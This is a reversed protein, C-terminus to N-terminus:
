YSRLRNKLESRTMSKGGLLVGGSDRQNQNQSQNQNKSQSSNNNGGLLVGGDYGSAYVGGDDYGGDEGFGLIRAIPAGIQALPHPITSLTNSIAKSERLKGIINKGFNILGSLFNGGNVHEVDNYTVSPKSRSELIDNSTLVGINTSARGLGEITFVGELIPVIVLTPRMLRGSVNNVTATIQITSQMIKGPADLSDLGIDSAFEVCIVSGVTGFSANIYNAANQVPGGSWQDWTLNCHNKVCMQYLQLQNASNLLGNKNIFQISLSTIPCYTDTYQPGSLLVNNQERVYIYMRRPISNLQFTNSNCMVNTAGIPLDPLDTFYRQVDFYPYSIALSPSLVQTEQPTIYQFFLYPSNGTTSGYSTPGGVSGGFVGTVTALPDLENRSWMRNAFQNYFNFTFDMANVNFFASSLGNGWYFPPLIINECFACDVVATIPGVGTQVPNSVIVFPFGGRGTVAEDGYNEYGGLPNRITSVNSLSSYNQSQDPYVPSSSFHHNKLKQDTNYHTLAHIVDGINITCTYNNITAKISELSGMLPYSRPADHGKNIVYGGIPPTATISLRVPLYLYVCRDVFIGGSPPPCSFNIASQSISTSTYQKWTTQSGAKFVAYDRENDVIVRPDLVQVTNLKQFSLSM